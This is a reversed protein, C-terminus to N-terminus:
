PSVHVAYVWMHPIPETANIACQQEFVIPERQSGYDTQCVPVVKENAASLVGTMTGGARGAAYALGVSPYKAHDVEKFTLNGMQAM